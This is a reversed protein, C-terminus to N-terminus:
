PGSSGRRRPSTRGRAEDDNERMVDPLVVEPACVVDDSLRDGHVALRRRDDADGLRAKAAREERLKGIEPNREGSFSAVPQLSLRPVATAIIPCRFFSAESESACAWSAIRQVCNCCARGSRFCRKM